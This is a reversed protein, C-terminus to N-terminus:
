CVNERVSAGADYLSGGYREIGIFVEIGLIKSVTM